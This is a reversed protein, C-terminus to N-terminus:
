YFVASVPYTFLLLHTLNVSFHVLIAAELRGTLYYAYGYFVGALTALSIYALGGYAHGLLITGFLLASVFIPIFVPWNRKLAIKILISQIVGRFLVEEAFCVFLLNNVAWLWFIDPFKPDFHIYGITLALIMLTFIALVAIGLTKFLTNLSLATTNKLVLGSALFLIVAASTKDFNLYMSYASSDPTLHIGNIVKPNNFGPMLHNAFLLAVLVILMVSFFHISARTTPYRLHCECLGWFLVICLVGIPNIFGWFYVLCIQLALFIKLVNQARIIFLSVILAALTLYPLLIHLSITM